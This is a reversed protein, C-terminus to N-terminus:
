PYNNKEMLIGDTSLLGLPMQTFLVNVIVRSQVVFTSQLKFEIRKRDKADECVHRWTERYPVKHMRRHLVPMSRTNTITGCGRIPHFGRWRWILVFADLRM